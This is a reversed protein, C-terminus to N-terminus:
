PQELQALPLSVVLKPWTRRIPGDLTVVISVLLPLREAHVWNSRWAPEVSGDAAAFYQFSATTVDRILVVRLSPQPAIANGDSRSLRQYRTMALAFDRHDPNGESPAVILDVVYLGAYQGSPAFSTIFQARIESGIFVADVTSPPSDLRIPRAERVIQEVLKQVAGLSADATLREAMELAKRGSRLADVLLVATLSMLTIAVLLELLTFGSDKDPAQDVSDHRGTM